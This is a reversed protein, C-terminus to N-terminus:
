LSVSYVTSYEPGDRRMQSETLSVDEVTMQGATPRESRLIEQVQAKGEGHEMRAITVHPTFTHGEEEFGLEVMEHEIGEHLAEMHDGGVPVGLWIVSIYDFEPFVGFNGFEAVFPDISAREVGRELAQEVAYLRDESVDGLFKLTVHAQTPDTTRVGPIPSFQEQLEAVADHLEPALDISVFLRRSM